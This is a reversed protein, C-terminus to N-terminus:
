IGSSNRRCVRKLQLVAPHDGDRRMGRRSKRLGAQGREPRLGLVIEESSGEGQRHMPSEESVRVPTASASWLCWADTMTARPTRSGAHHMRDESGSRGSSPDVPLCMDWLPRQCPPCRGRWGGVGGAPVTGPCHRPRAPATATLSPARSPKARRVPRGGDPPPMRTIGLLSAHLLVPISPSRIAPPCFTVDRQKGGPDPSRRMLAAHRLALTRPGRQQPRRHPDGVSTDSCPVLGHTAPAGVRVWSCFLM